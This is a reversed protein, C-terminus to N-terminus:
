GGHNKDGEDSKLDDEAWVDLVGDEKVSFNIHFFRKIDADYLGVWVCDDDLRELHVIAVDVAVIEDLMAMPVDAEWDGWDRYNIREVKM